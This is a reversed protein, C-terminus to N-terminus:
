RYCIESIEMALELFEGTEHCSDCLGCDFNCNCNCDNSPAADMSLSFQRYSPCCRYTIEECTAPLIHFLDYFRCFLCYLIVGACDATDAQHSSDSSSSSSLSDSSNMNYKNTTYLPTDSSDKETAQQPGNSTQSIDANGPGPEYEPIASLKRVSVPAESLVEVDRVLSLKKDGKSEM